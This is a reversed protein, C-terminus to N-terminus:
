NCGHQQLYWPNIGTKPETIYWMKKIWDGTQVDLNVEYLATTFQVAIACWLASLRNAVAVILLPGFCFHINVFKWLFSLDLILFINAFFLTHYIFFSSLKVVSFPVAWKFFTWSINFSSIHFLCIPFPEIDLEDHFKFNSCYFLVIITLLIGFIWFVSLMWCQHPRSVVPIWENCATYLIIVTTVKSHFTNAYVWIMECSYDLIFQLYTCVFIHM